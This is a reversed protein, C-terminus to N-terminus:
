QTANTCKHKEHLDHELEYTLLQRRDQLRHERTLTMIVQLQQHSLLSNSKFVQPLLRLLPIGSM